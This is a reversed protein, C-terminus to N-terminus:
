QITHETQSIVYQHVGYTAEALEVVTGQAQRLSCM